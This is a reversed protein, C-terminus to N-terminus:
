VSILILREGYCLNGSFIHMLEKSKIKFQDRLTQNVKLKM